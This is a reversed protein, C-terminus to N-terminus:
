NTNLRKDNPVFTSFYDEKKPTRQLIKLYNCQNWKKKLKDVVRSQKIENRKSESM